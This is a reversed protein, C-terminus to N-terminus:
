KKNNNQYKLNQRAMNKRFPQQMLTKNWTRYWQNRKNNLQTELTIFDKIDKWNGIKWMVWKNFLFFILPLFITWAPLSWAAMMALWAAMLTLFQGQIFFLLNDVETNGQGIMLWHHKYWIWLKEKDTLHSWEIKTWFRPKHVFRKVCFIAIKQKLTGM